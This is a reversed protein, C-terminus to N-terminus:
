AVSYLHPLIEYLKGESRINALDSLRIDAETSMIENIILSAKMSFESIEKITYKNSPAKHSVDKQQHILNKPSKKDRAFTYISEAGDNKLDFEIKSLNM